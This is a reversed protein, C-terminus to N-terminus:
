RILRPRRAARRKRPYEVAIYYDLKREPYKAVYDCVGMPGEELPDYICPEKEKPSYVIWHDEDDVSVISLTDIGRFSTAEGRKKSFIHGLAKLGRRIDAEWSYCYRDPRYQEFM